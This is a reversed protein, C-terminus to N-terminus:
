LTSRLIFGRTFMFRSVTQAAEEINAFSSPFYGWVQGLVLLVLETACELRLIRYISQKGIQSRDQFNQIEIRDATKHEYKRCRTPSGFRICRLPNLAFNKWVETRLIATKQLNKTSIKSNTFLISHTQKNMELHYQFSCESFVFVLM